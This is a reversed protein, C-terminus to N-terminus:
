VRPVVVGARLPVLSALRWGALDRPAVGLKKGLRLAINTAYDGHDAHRPREVVVSEPVAADDLGRDRVVTVTVTRLLAALDAPTM